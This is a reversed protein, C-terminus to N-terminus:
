PTMTLGLMVLNNGLGRQHSWNDHRAMAAFGTVGRAVPTRYVIQMMRHRSAVGLGIRSESTRYSGDGNYGAVSTQHIAGGTVALPQGLHLVLRDGERAADTLALWAGASRATLRTDRIFSNHQFDVRSRLRVLDAGVTIRGAVRRHATLHLYHSRTPRALAYAGEPKSGLFRDSEHLQGLRVALRTGRNAFGTQLGIDRITYGKARQTTQRAEASGGGGGGCAALIFAAASVLAFVPVPRAGCTRGTMHSVIQNMHSAIQNKLM